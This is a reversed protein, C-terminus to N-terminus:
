LGGIFRGPSMINSPDLQEKLRKMIIFDSGLEGWIKLRKKINAPARQIILNGGAEQSRRLLQGMAEIAKDFLGNDGQDMLLNILCIGSGAHAMITHKINVKSLIRHAFQFVDKWESIRYNLKAKILGPFKETLGLELDSVARWFRLHALNKVNTHHKSKLTRAMGTIENVMRGVAENFSELAVVVVYENPDFESVDDMRLMSFATKNMVEVAAPLLSTEFIGKVLDSANQFSDFSLLLTEMKEPLLLLKFTMECLIGISGMSGVMLKSIDYGSVNKVTKGGAGAIEGSPTVVRVGLIMDRPLTYLLRRPGASNTAIIGGISASSCFCPDIPLFCGSHSRDSCVLEGTERKLEEIPFYCRGDETALRAQIDRFKVGAEVTITLNSTDVDIIHNMYSTCIVLDLRKPSNGMVIKSGSGWPTVALNERYAFKVIESTEQTNKPFIVAKPKVGDVAYRGTIHSEITILDQGLIGTLGNVIDKPYMM